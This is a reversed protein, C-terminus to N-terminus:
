SNHDSATSADRRWRKEKGRDMFLAAPCFIEVESAIVPREAEACPEIPGNLEPVMGWHCDPLGAIV